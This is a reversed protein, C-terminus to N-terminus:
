PGIARFARWGGGPDRARLQLQALRLAAPGDFHEGGHELQAYLATGLVRALEDDVKGDAGIVWDAGALVFARGLNMGGALTGEAVSTTNCGSLVVGAPV